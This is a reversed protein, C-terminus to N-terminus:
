FAQEIEPTPKKGLVCAEAQCFIFEIDAYRGCIILCDTIEKLKNPM